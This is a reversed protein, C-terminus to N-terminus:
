KPCRYATAMVRAVLGGVDVTLLEPHLKLFSQVMLRIQLTSTHDPICIPEDHERAVQDGLVGNSYGNIYSNCMVDGLSGSPGNCAALLDGGRVQALAPLAAVISAALLTAKIIV